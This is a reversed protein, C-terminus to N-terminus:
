VLCLQASLYGISLSGMRRSQRIQKLSLPATELWGGHQDPGRTAFWADAGCVHLAQAVSVTDPFLAISQGPLSEYPEAMTVSKVEVFM